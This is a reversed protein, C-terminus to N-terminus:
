PANPDDSTLPILNFGDVLEYVGKRVFNVHRGDAAKLEGGVQTAGDFRIYREIVIQKGTPDSAKFSNAFRLNSM